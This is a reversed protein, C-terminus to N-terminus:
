CDDNVFWILLLVYLVYSETLGVDRCTRSVESSQDRREHRIENWVHLAGEKTRDSGFVCYYALKAKM